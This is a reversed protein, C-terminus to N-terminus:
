RGPEHGSIGLASIVQYLREIEVPKTLYENAGSALLKRIQSDTADASLIVVPIQKTLEDSRLDALVEEGGIDPLHLDLLVLDPELTRALMIGQRGQNCVRLEVNDLRHLAREILQVNSMNDEVYLVRIVSRLGSKELQSAPVSLASEQAVGDGGYPLDLMFVSGEPGSKLRLSGGMIEALHRSLTLGIGTGEIESTEAGLREFPAFALEAQEPSIGPGTDAVSITIVDEDLLYSIVVSGGTRNYKIANSVLNLLIQRLRQRDALVMDGARGDSVLSVDVKRTEALPRLLGCVENVVEAIGVQERSLALRGEEIRAIDLVENILQLLHQGGRRIQALSDRQEGTLEDLELLQAFGLISNLPTRLEHSMRSLFESKALNANEAVETASTLRVELDVQETVDRLVLLITAEDGGDRLAVGHGELIRWHGNGSQFQLREVFSGIAGSLTQSMKRQLEPLDDAPVLDFLGLEQAGSGGQVALEDFAKSSLRIKGDLDVVVIADPSADFLARLMEESERLAKEAERGETVDLLVGLASVTGNGEESYTLRTTSYVWRQIGDGGLVRYTSSLESDRRAIARTAEAIVSDRDESDIANLWNESDRSALDASVAFVRDLNSSVFGAGPIGTASQFKVVPSASVLHELFRSEELLAAERAELLRSTEKLSEALRGVEDEADPAEDIPEGRALAEAGKQLALIRTSVGTTFLQMALAGGVIGVLLAALAAWLGADAIDNASAEDNSVLVAVRTELSKVLLRVNDTESKEESILIDTVSSPASTGTSALKSLLVMDATDASKLKSYTALSLHEARLQSALSELAPPLERSALHYPALYSRDSSILYGRVGTEADLTLTLISELSTRVQQASRVANGANRSALVISVLGLFSMLLAFM